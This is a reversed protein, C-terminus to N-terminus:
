ENEMIMSQYMKQATDEIQQLENLIDETTSVSDFSGGRLLDNYLHDRLSRTPLDIIVKEEPKEEKTSTKTVIAEQEKCTEQLKKEEPKDSEKNGKIEDESSVKQGMSSVLVQERRVAEGILEELRVEKLKEEPEKSIKQQQVAAFQLMQKMEKKSLAASSKTGKRRFSLKNLLTGKKKKKSKEKSIPVPENEKAENSEDESISPSEVTAEMVLARETDENRNEEEENESHSIDVLESPQVQQPQAKEDPVQRNGTSSKDTGKKKKGGASNDQNKRQHKKRFNFKSRKKREMSALTVVEASLTQSLNSSDEDSRLTEIKDECTSVTGQSYDSEQGWSDTPATEGKKIAADLEFASRGEKKSSHSHSDATSDPETDSESERSEKPALYKAAKDGKNMEVPKDLDNNDASTNSM